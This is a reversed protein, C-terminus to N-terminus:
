GSTACFNSNDIRDQDVRIWDSVGIEQGIMGPLEKVDVMRTM